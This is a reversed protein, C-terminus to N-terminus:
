EVIKVSHQLSTKVDVALSNEQLFQVTDRIHPTMYDMLQLVSSGKNSDANGGSSMGHQHPGSDGSTSTNLPVMKLNYALPTVDSALNIALNLSKKWVDIAAGVATDQSPLKSILDAPCLAFWTSLTLAIRNIIYLNRWRMRYLSSVVTVTEMFRYLM